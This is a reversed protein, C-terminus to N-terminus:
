KHWVRFARSGASNREAAYFVPDEKEFFEGQTATDGFWVNQERSGDGHDPVIFGYLKGSRHLATFLVVGECIDDVYDRLPIFKPESMTLGQYKGSALPTSREETPGPRM